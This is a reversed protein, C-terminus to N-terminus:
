EIELQEYFRFSTESSAYLQDSRQEVAGAVHQLIENFFRNLLKELGKSRLEFGIYFQVFCGTKNASKFIWEINLQRFPKDTSWIEIREPRKLIANSTFRKSVMGYGIEQEVCYLDDERKYIGAGHWGPLFEEYSEVDAALDFMQERTYPFEQEWDFENM